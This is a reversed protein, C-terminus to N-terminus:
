KKAEDRRRAEALIHEAERLAEAAAALHEHAQFTQQRIPEETM